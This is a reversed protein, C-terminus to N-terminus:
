SSDNRLFQLPLPMSALLRRLKSKERPDMRIFELGYQYEIAERTETLDKWVIRAETNLATFQFEHTYFMELSLETGVSM